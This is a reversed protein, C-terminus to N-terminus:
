TFTGADLHRRVGCPTRPNFDRHVDRGASYLGDCGALPAHISIGPYYKLIFQSSTAGRLPHTSQFSTPPTTTSGDTRRVGCPTRPNFHVAIINYQMRLGDCGALPAHISIGRGGRGNGGYLTAGRLPHTSQFIYLKYVRRLMKDDCGALPAHISIIAIAKVCLTTVTAGRLPHTSQFELPLPRQPYPYEDCGALPAHISIHILPFSLLPRRTAGRLPHTSQFITKTQQKASGNRRVGCPTRPNFHAHNFFSAAGTNDCGALPAHISIYAFTHAIAIDLTAGRLPHTSQFIWILVCM